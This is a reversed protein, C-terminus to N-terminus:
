PTRIYCSWKHPLARHPLTKRGFPSASVTSLIPGPIHHRIGIRGQLLLKKLEQPGVREFQSMKDQSRALAAEIVEVALEGGQVRLPGIQRGFQDQFGDVPFFKVDLGDTSQRQTRIGDYRGHRSHAM